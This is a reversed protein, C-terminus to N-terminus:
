DWNNCTVKLIKNLQEQNEVVIINAKCDKAVFECDEATSSIYIGTPLGSHTFVMNKHNSAAYEAVCACQCVGIANWVLESAWMIISCAHIAECKRIIILYFLLFQFALLWQSDFGASTLSTHTHTPPPPHVAHPLFINGVSTTPQHAEATLPSSAPCKWLTTPMNM